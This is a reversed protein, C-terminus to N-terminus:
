FDHPFRRPEARDIRVWNLYSLYSLDANKACVFRSASPAFFNIKRNQTWSRNRGEDMQEASGNTVDIDTLCPPPAHRIFLLAGKLWGSPGDHRKHKPLIPLMPAATICTVQFYCSMSNLWPVLYRLSFIKEMAYVLLYATAGLRCDTIELNERRSCFISKAPNEFCKASNM